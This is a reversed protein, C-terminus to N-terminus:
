SYVTDAGYVQCKAKADFDQITMKYASLTNVKIITKIKMKYYNNFLSVTTYFQYMQALTIPTINM